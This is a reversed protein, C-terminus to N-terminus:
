GVLGNMEGNKLLGHLGEGHVTAILSVGRQAVTKAAKV